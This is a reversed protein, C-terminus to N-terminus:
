FNEDSVNVEPIIWDRCKGHWPPLAGDIRLREGQKPECIPCVIDDAATQNICYQIGQKMWAQANAQAFIRTIETVAIYDARTAGFLPTLEEILVSLPAGSEIWAQAHTLVLARSRATMKVAMRQTMNQALALAAENVFDSSFVTGTQAELLNLGQRMGAVTASHVVPFIIRVVKEASHLWLQKSEM